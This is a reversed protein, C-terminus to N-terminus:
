SDRIRKLFRLLNRDNGILKLRLVRQSWANLLVLLFFHRDQGVLKQLLSFLELSHHCQFSNSLRRQVRFFQVVWLFILLLYLIPRSYLSQRVTIFALRDIVRKLLKRFVHDLLEVLGVQGLLGLFNVVVDDTLLHM